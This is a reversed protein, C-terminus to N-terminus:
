VIKHHHEFTTESLGIPEEPQHLGEVLQILRLRNVLRGLDDLGSDLRVSQILVLSLRWFLLGGQGMHELFLDLVGISYHSDDAIVM